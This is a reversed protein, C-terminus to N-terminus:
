EGVLRPCRQMVANRRGLVMLTMRMRTMMMGIWQKSVYRQAAYV